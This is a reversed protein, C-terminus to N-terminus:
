IFNKLKQKKFHEKVQAFTWIASKDIWSNCVIIEGSKRVILVFDDEYGEDIFPCEIDTGNFGNSASEWWKLTVSADAAAMNIKEVIEKQIDNM